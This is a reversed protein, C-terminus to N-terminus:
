AALANEVVQVRGGRDVAAVDVRMDIDGAEYDAAFRAAGRLLRAAQTPSVAHLAEELSRRAKVEVFVLQSPFAVVLDLEGAGDGRDPSRWRRAVVDAGRARYWEAAQDEASAGWCHGRAGRRQARKNVFKSQSTM